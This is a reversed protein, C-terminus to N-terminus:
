WADCVRLRGRQQVHVALNRDGETIPGASGLM